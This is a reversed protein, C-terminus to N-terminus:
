EYRLSLSPNENAAKITQYSITLLAIGMSISIGILFDSPQLNIRYHFNQLWNDAVWYILPCSVVSSILILLGIERAIMLWISYVSAGFTKRVGIEKTRAQVTFATLGYLGLTAILIGIITFIVSLRANQKEERYMREYDKDLFFYQMPVHNTFDGWTKEIESITSAPMNPLLRISVYGWNMQDTKYRFVYPGIATRLSEFHFDPVVGIVKMPHLENAPDAGSRFKTELPQDISYKAVAAQNILCAEKDTGMSRDFSRGESLGIKFTEFYDYDVWNTQMLYSENPRGIMMYGNHNNNHGPIATSASASAVGPIQKVADKFSEMKNRLTSTRSIVLVNEKDFGLDKKLMFRIQRFMILTGVILIISFTFQIIVLVSRLNFNRNSVHLKGKLVEVPRFSSLYFAPYSGALLGFLTAFLIMVPVLLPITFYDLTLSLDLLNNLYPLSIECLVIAGLLALFSLILTEILFQAILSKESSGSVKKIGVEKARKSAQATSLNMFNIAAIVLILIGVIGFILLYKPDNAPRMDQEITPDLHAETLPQFILTYTNGRASFEELTIGLYKNVEPGVYKILLDNVRAQATEVRTNPHLLLYTNFSNSLWETDKSRPNTVFSGVINARFHSNEPVDQMVGTIRYPTSDNGVRIMKNLPNESGFMKRASSESLVLTHPENLIRDKNGQLLNISFFNFFSSDAEIFNEETFYHEEYQLVTEDWREIRLFDEVEPFENRMSPGIPSATWVGKLEQGGIRGQLILRYIRDKKLNYQDFSLENYIFLGIVLTCAMGVSLGALNIFVYSKQRKLAKYSYQFLKNFMSLHIKEVISM